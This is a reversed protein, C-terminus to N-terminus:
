IEMLCRDECHECCNCHESNDNMEIESEYPCSHFPLDDRCTCVETDTSM